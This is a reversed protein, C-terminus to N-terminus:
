ESEGWRRGDVLVRRCLWVHLGDSVALAKGYSAGRQTGVMARAVRGVVHGKHELLLARQERTVVHQAVARRDEFVQLEIERRQPAHRRLRRPTPIWPM